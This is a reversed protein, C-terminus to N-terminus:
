QTLRETIKKKGSGHAPFGVIFGRNKRLCLPEGGGCAKKGTGWTTPSGHVNPGLANPCIVVPAGEGKITKRADHELVLTADFGLEVARQAEAHTDCSVNLTFGQAADVLRALAARNHERDEPTGRDTVGAIPKHTYAIPRKGSANCAGIIRMCADEAIPDGEGPLDGGEAYRWVPSWQPDHEIMATFEDLTYSQYKGADHRKRHIGGNGQEDYCGRGLLPCSTPCTNTTTRTVTMPGTKRQKSNHTRHFRTQRVIERYLAMANTQMNM